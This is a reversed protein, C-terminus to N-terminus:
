SKHSFDSFGEQRGIRAVHETWRMRSSKVVRLIENDTPNMFNNMGNERDVQENSDRFNFYKKVLSKTRMCMQVVDRKMVTAVEGLKV